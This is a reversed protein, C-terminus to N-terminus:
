MIKFVLASFPESDSAARIESAQTRPHHGVVPPIDVPSPLYDVIADLLPHVGKNRFSAGYLVPVFKLGITGKRIAGKIERVSIKEGDLYKQMLSDDTESITESM